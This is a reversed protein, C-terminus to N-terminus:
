IVMVKVISIVASVLNLLVTGNKIVETSINSFKAVDGKKFTDLYAERIDNIERDSVKNKRLECYIADWQKEYDVYETILGDVKEAIKDVEMDKQFYADIKKDVLMESVEKYVSASYCCVKKLPYAGKVECALAFGEMSSKLRSAVGRIDLMIIDFPETEIAYTMDSKYYVNYQREKLVEYLEDDTDDVVLIRVRKRLESISNEGIMKLAKVYRDKKRCCLKM